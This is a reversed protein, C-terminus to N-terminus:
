KRGMVLLRESERTLEDGDFGAVLRIEGFGAEEFMHRLEVPSYFRVEFEGDGVYTGDEIAYITATARSTLPDYEHREAHVSDEDPKGVVSERWSSLFGEKDPVELLVVGGPELREGFSALVDANTEDDFFGFSTYVCILLDYTGSLGDLDRMDRAFFKTEAATEASAARAKAREVYAESIDLGHAEIGREALAIAHRGTGCGVDLVSTPSFEYTEALLALMADVQDDAREAWQEFKPLFVEPDDKYIQSPDSM